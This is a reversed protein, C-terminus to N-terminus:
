SPRHTVTRNRRFSVFVQRNRHISDTGLAIGTLTTFIGLSIHRHRIAVRFSRRDLLNRRRSESHRAFVQHVGVIQLDLHGLTGLRALTALQRRVLNIWPNCLRAMRRRTDAQNRRWRMVVNIRDFIEFLQNVIQFIRIRRRPHMDFENSFHADARHGRTNGLRFCIDNQNRPM